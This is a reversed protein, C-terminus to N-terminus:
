TWPDSQFYEPSLVLVQRDSQDLAADMQGVVPKGPKFRERDILVDAGGAKLCPLLRGAVWDVQAHCYSIFVKM